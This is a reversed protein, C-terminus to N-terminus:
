FKGLICQLKHTLDPPNSSTLILLNLWEKTYEKSTNNSGVVAAAMQM